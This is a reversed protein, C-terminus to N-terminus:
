RLELRMLLEQNVAFSLRETFARLKEIPWSDALEPDVAALTNLVLLEDILQEYEIKPVLFDM